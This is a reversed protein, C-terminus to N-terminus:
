RKYEELKEKFKKTLYYGGTQKATGQFEILKADGLLKIYREVSKSPVKLLAAYERVKKGENNYILLLLEKLKRKVDETAGEITGKIAGEIAGGVTGEITGELKTDSFFTLKVTNSEALWVPANLGRQKCADIIKLTGRGIKEIYGRLFVLQAIDPNVPLSLHSKKLEAPKLALSGSNIIELKDPFITISATGSVNAYDRHILANLVGERLAALPYQLDDQRLWNSDSFRRRLELHKLFFEQIDAINRFLNGELLQDDKFTSGTKGQQLYSLRVRCQPLFRAPNKGFLVVAANTFHGNLFLGYYSLFDQVNNRAEKARANTISATLTANIEAVDLDELEVGLAPQREWHVETQQRHHILEAIERTSAKVTNAGRRYFISGDFLYPKKAGSWVKVLIIEKKGARESSVTVPAEPIIEQILYKQLEIATKEANTVGRIEGDNSVGILLQGGEGNLFSCVTQAIIEKRVVQKLELQESEGGIILEKILQESNM